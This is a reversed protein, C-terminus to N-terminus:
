GETERWIKFLQTSTVVAQSAIVNAAIMEDLVKALKAASAFMEATPPKMARQNASFANM